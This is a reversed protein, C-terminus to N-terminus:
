HKLGCIVSASVTDTQYKLGKELLSLLIAVILPLILVQCAILFRYNFIITFFAWFPTVVSTGGGGPTPISDVGKM